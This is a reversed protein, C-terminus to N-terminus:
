QQSSQRSFFVNWEKPWPTQSRFNIPNKELIIAVEPSM